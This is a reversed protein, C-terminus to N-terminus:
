AFGRMGFGMEADHCSAVADFRANLPPVYEPM